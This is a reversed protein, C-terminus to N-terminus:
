PQARALRDARIVWWLDNSAPAFHHRRLWENRAAERDEATIEAKPCGDIPFCGLIGALGVDSQTAIEVDATNARVYLRKADGFVTKMRNWGKTM